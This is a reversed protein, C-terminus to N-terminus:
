DQMVDIERRPVSWTLLDNSSYSKIGYFADKQSVSNGYLYYRGGFENIKAGVADIQNGDTDFLLRRNNGFTVSGATTSNGWVKASACAATALAALYTSVRMITDTSADVQLTSSSSEYM